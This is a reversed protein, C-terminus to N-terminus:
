VLKHMSYCIHAINNIDINLIHTLIIIRIKAYMKDHKGNM